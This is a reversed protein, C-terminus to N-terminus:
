LSGLQPHRQSCGAGAGVLVPCECAESPEAAINDVRCYDSMVSADNLAGAVARYDLETARNVGYAARDFHLISHDLSVCADGFVPPDLKAEADMNAVHNFLAIAIQHAIADVNGCPQLADTLGAAHAHRSGGVLLNAVADVLSEDVQALLRELVDGARDARVPDPPFLCCKREWATGSFGVSEKGSLGEIAIRGNWFM